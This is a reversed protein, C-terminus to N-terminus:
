NLHSLPTSSASAFVTEEGGHKFRRVFTAIHKDVVRPFIM